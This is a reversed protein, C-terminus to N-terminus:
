KKIIKYAIEKAKYYFRILFGPIIVYKLKDEIPQYKWDIGRIIKRIESSYMNRLYYPFLGYLRLKDIMIKFDKNLYLDKYDTFLMHQHPEYLKKGIARNQVEVDQNYYALPKNLLAVKYKAAIRVWLDFDEGLKLQPNFGNETIFNTKRIICAGTWVPMWLSKSYAKFYNMYGETFDNEVGIQAPIMKSNKVKYYSAAYIAAEPYKKILSYMEYLYDVDWWDDADLFAIFDYKALKVGNNRTTSVGKNLQRYVHVKKIEPSEIGSKLSDENESESSLFRFEFSDDGGREESLKRLKEFSNDTSGDDIVILEFEQFTQALVSRIAKEIYPAKNYLPIIVSFM